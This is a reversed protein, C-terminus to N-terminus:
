TRPPARRALIGAGIGFVRRLECWTMMRATCFWVGERMALTGCTVCHNSPLFLAVHLLASFPSIQLCRASSQPKEQAVVIHTIHSPPPPLPNRGTNVLPLPSVTAHFRCLSVVSIHALTSAALWPRRPTSNHTSSVPQVCCSSRYVTRPLSSLNIVRPLAYFPVPRLSFALSRRVLLPFHLSLLHAISLFTPSGSYHAVSFHLSFPFHRPHSCSLLIVYIIHSSAPNNPNTRLIPIYDLRCAV